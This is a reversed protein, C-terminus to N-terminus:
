EMVVARSGMAAFSSWFTQWSVATTGRLPDVATCSENEMGALVVCHLNAYPTYLEGTKEISWTKESYRPEEYGVTVWVLGWTASRGERLGDNKNYYVLM